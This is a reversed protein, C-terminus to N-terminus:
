GVRGAGVDWFDVWLAAHVMQTATHDLLVFHVRSAKRKLVRSAPNRRHQEKPKCISQRTGQVERRQPPHGPDRRALHHAIQHPKLQLTSPPLTVSKPARPSSHSLEPIPTEIISM